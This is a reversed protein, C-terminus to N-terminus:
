PGENSVDVMKQTRLIMWLLSFMRQFVYDVHESAGLKEQNTESHRIRLRNGICTLEKAESELAERFKPADSGATADLMARAQAQKDAGPWRITKIREWADWLAELAERRKELDPALFKTRATTLLRNLEDDGTLFKSRSAAMDFEPPLLREIRGGKTLQYAVGNRRLIDEVDRRFDERGSHQDFRLHFHGYYDHRLEEIPLAIRKWCFEIADFVKLDSPTEHRSGLGTNTAWPWNGLSPILSRMLDRFSDKDTGIIAKIETDPCAEPFSLGFSGDAIRIRILAGIGDRVADSLQESVRPLVHGERESHYEM